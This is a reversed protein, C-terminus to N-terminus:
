KAPISRLAYLPAGAQKPKVAETMLYQPKQGLGLVGRSPAISLDVGTADVVAVPQGLDVRQVYAEVQSKKDPLHWEFFLAIVRARAARQEPTSGRAIALEHDRRQADAEAQVRAALEDNARKQESVAQTM